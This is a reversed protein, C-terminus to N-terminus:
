REIEAILQRASEDVDLHDHVAARGREAIARTAEPDALARALTAALSESDNPRALFGTDGDRVLEPIGSVPTTVVPVGLAMAECLFIPIGDREGDAALVCPLVAADAALLEQRIVANDRPGLFEVLETVAHQACAAQLAALEPGDGLVRWRCRMGRARLIALAPPVTHLGKKAVLRAASVLTGDGRPTARQRWNALDLGLYVVPIRTAATTAAAPLATLRERCHRTVVRFFTTRAIKEDLMQHSYPFEFDVYSSISCPVALLHAAGLAVNAPWTSAYVHVHGPHLPALQDALAFANGPHRSDRLPLKGLLDRVSGGPRARYISFLERGRKRLLWRLVCLAHATIGDRQLFTARALLEGAERHVPALENRALVVVHWEPRVRLLALVERYVFTHSLDPLVPLVLVTTGGGRSGHTRVPPRQRPAVIGALTALLLDTGRHWLTRLVERGILLPGVAIARDADDVVRQRQRCARLLAGLPPPAKPWGQWRLADNM